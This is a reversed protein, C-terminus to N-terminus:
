SACRACFPTFPLLDLRAEAIPTGCKVCEGYAGRDMRALAAKIQQIEAQGSLGLAELAEDGERETASDEWDKTQHSDLEAEIEHLRTDLDALRGELQGRRHKLDTM